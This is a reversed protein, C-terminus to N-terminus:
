FEVTVTRTAQVWDVEAGFSEAIARVPVLTRGGVIKAPVDLTIAEGNRYLINSDITLSINVEDLEATVTRTANDWEVDAGMAEFIARLPVLTRGNEIVPPQDFAIPAGNLLVQIENTAPPPSASTDGEIVLFFSGFSATYGDNILYTGPATFTLEGVRNGEQDTQINNIYSPTTTQTDYYWNLIEHFGEATLAITAPANCYFVQVTGFDLLYDSIWRLDGELNIWMEFETVPATRQNVVNSISIGKEVTVTQGAAFAPVALSVCLALAIIISITKKKMENKEKLKDKRGTRGGIIGNWKMNNKM